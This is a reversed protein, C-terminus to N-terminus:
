FALEDPLGFHRFLEPIAFATIHKVRAGELALVELTDPRYSRTEAHWRYAGAALQGSARTPVLRWEDGGDRRVFGAIVERGRWWTAWPPMAITADEALLAVIAGADGQEWADIYRQVLDRLREDGLAGRASCLRRCRTMPM